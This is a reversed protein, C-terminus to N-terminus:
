RSKRSKKYESNSLGGWFRIHQFNHLECIMFKEMILSDKTGNDVMIDDLIEPSPPKTMYSITSRVEEKGCVWKYHVVVQPVNIKLLGKLARQYSQNINNLKQHSVRLKKRDLEKEFILVNVHPKYTSDKGFLHLIGVVGKHLSYIRETGKKTEKEGVFIGFYRCILRRVLDFFQNLRKRTMFEKRLDFPLTFVFRRLATFGSFRIRNLVSEIRLSHILNNKGGCRHCLPKKCRFRYTKDGNVMRKGCLEMQMYYKSGKDSNSQNSIEGM